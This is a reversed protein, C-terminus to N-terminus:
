PNAGKIWLVETRKPRAATTGNATVNSRCTVERDVRKWGALKEEYLPHAYGSLVVAGDCDNLSDLLEVHQEVTMECRYLRAARTEPVYPPDAYFLTQRTDYQRVCEVASLNEIQVERLRGAVQIITEPLLLWRAVSSSLGARRHGLSRSWSGGLRGSMSMRGVVALAWAAYWDGHDIGDGKWEDIVRCCQEFVARSYETLAVSRALNQGDNRCARFFNALVKDIDNYVEVKSPEKRLLIGAAGGCVEVYTHHDPFHGLIWEAQEWKGGVWQFPPNDVQNFLTTSM